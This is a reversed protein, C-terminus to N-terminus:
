TQCLFILSCLEQNCLPKGQSLMGLREKFKALLKEEMKPELSYMSSIM